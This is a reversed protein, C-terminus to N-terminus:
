PFGRHQHICPPTSSSPYNISISKWPIDLRTSSSNALLDDSHSTIQPLVISLSPHYLSHFAISTSPSSSLLSTAPDAAPALITACIRLFRLSEVLILFSASQAFKQFFTSHTTNLYQRSIQPGCLSCALDEAPPSSALVSVLYLIAHSSRSRELINNLSCGSCRM